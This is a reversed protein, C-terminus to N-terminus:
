MGYDTPGSMPGSPLGSPSDPLYCVLQGPAYRSQLYCDLPASILRVLRGIGPSVPQLQMTVGQLTVEVFPGPETGFGEFVLELPMTTYITM